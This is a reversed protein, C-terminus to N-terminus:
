PEFIAVADDFMCQVTAREDTGANEDVNSGVTDFLGDDFGFAATQAGQQLGQGVHDPELIRVSCVEVAVWFGCAKETQGRFADDALGVMLKQGGDNGVLQAVVVLCGDFAAGGQLVLLVKMERVAMGFAM